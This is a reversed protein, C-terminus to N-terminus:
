GSSLGNWDEEEEGHEETGYISPDMHASADAAADEPSQAAYRGWLDSAIEEASCRVGQQAFYDCVRQVDRAFIAWARRNTRSYTVQPFDILTVRGEWYLLNYASLDGHILGHQLMLEINRLVERFLEEAEARDLRIGNLTPAAMREDGCYSMLLANDNVAYPKPVAAGLQHLRELTTYEYMLWSTHSVQVGTATKKGIARMIRHDTAKVPRGDATLVARGERYMKDNRLNRFMRPRYVKAALLAAGTTPAAACCYVSAEKGGKVNALVDTILHQEYFSRLSELLWGAEFRGPRYTPNFGGELGTAEAVRAVEAASAQRRRAKSGQKRRRGPHAFLEEYYEVQDLYFDDDEYIHNAV